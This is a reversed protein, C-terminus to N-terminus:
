VINSICLLMSFLQYSNNKASFMYTLICVKRINIFLYFRGINLSSYSLKDFDITFFSMTLLALLM